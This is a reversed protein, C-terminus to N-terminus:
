NAPFLTLQDLQCDHCLLAFPSSSVWGAGLVCWCMWSEFFVNELFFSCFLKNNIETYVLGMKWAKQMYTDLSPSLHRSGSLWSFWGVLWPFERWCEDACRCSVITVISSQLASRRVMIVVCLYASSRLVLSVTIELACSTDMLRWVRIWGNPDSRHDSM